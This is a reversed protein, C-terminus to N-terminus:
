SKGGLISAVRKAHREAVADRWSVILEVKKIPIRRPASEGGHKYTFSGVKVTKSGRKPTTAVKARRWCGSAVFRVMAGEKLAFGNSECYGDWHALVRALESEIMISHQGFRGGTFVISVGAGAVQARLTQYVGDVLATRELREGTAKVRLVGTSLLELEDSLKPIYRTNTM